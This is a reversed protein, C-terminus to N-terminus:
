RAQKHPLSHLADSKPFFDQESGYLPLLLVQGRVKRAKYIHCRAANLLFQPFEQLKRNCFSRWRNLELFELLTRLCLNIRKLPTAKLAM